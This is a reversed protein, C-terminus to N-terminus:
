VGTRPNWPYVRSGTSHYRGGKQGCALLVHHWV